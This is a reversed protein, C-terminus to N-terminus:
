GVAAFVVMQGDFSELPDSAESKSLRNAEGGQAPCRYLRHGDAIGSVFYIWKGDRSWSPESAELTNTVLKRPVLQSVDVIYVEAKGSRRSDFVIRQSDPAWRSKGALTACLDSVQVANQGYAYGM